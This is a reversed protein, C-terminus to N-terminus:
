PALKKLADCRAKVLATGATIPAGLSLHADGATTYKPWAVGDGNPDGSKAFRTWYGGMAEALSKEDASPFTLPATFNGFVFWLESTHFAGLGYLKGFSTVYTFQYLFTGPVRASVARAEERAPCTFLLEGLFTDYAVKPSSFASAPWIKLLEDAYLPATSRVAAEYEATTTIKLASTWLTAEDANTGIVYPVDNAPGTILRAHPSAPVYWGDIAPGFGLEKGGIGGGTGAAVLDDVPKARLCAAPDAGECGVAKALRAGREEASDELGPTGPDRLPTNVLACTGSQSIARHFLGAARPSTVHLCVSVAGASEGFVTVNGPDGGFGEVNRKVWELAAKQDLLGWNGSTGKEGGNFAPHALFGLPGLRYNITVVVVGRNALREGDFVPLSGSGAEFSGGHIFVMVPAKAARDIKPTWVNLFLCDESQEPKVKTVPDVGQPCAPPLKKADLVDTWAARPQPPAFRLASAPAAAYPVGLFSAGLGAAGGRVPGRDTSVVWPDGPAGDGQTDAVADQGADPAQAPSESSSSCAVALLPLLTLLRAM